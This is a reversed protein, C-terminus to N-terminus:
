RWQRAREAAAFGTLERMRAVLADISTGNPCVAAAGIGILRPVLPLGSETCVPREDVRTRPIPM